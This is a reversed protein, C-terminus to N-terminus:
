VFIPSAFTAGHEPTTLWFAQAPAEPRFNNTYAYEDYGKLSGNVIIGLGHLYQHWHGMVLWDYTKGLAIQRASKRANGRMIPMVMGSIGDGGRFQDGHTLRFRTSYITVDCDASEPIQWTINSDDATAKALMRYLLWDFNDRVRLKMRPKRTLRGHNGVVCAVHLKGFVARLGRVFGVLEDSWFDLSGLITDENTQTLEEHINGSFTDGGLLLVLGDYTLGTYFNRTLNAASDLVTHTRRVAITRDYENVGEVEEPRVREDYHQDSFLLTPTAHYIGGKTKRVAWAPSNPVLNDLKEVLDLREQLKKYRAELEAFDRKARAAVHEARLARDDALRQTLTTKTIRSKDKPSM